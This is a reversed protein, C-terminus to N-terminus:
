GITLLVGILMLSLHRVRVDLSSLPPGPQVSCLPREHIARRQERHPAELMLM